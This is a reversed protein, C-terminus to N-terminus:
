VADAGSAIRSAGRADAAFGPQDFFDRGPIAELLDRTYAQRPASFVEATAGEEVIQGKQLVIVRDAIEAAIRLDHTIFIMALRMERRLEALLALVQAQVSVDLASVAEDAILVRPKLALARAICIRQRQGGSFEHPYRDAAAESLGVRLLLKKAQETAAGRATGYAMPGRAIADGIKQRPDLSAFPDQFVIQLQRRAQRLAEGRLQRLDAGGFRIAGADPETLRMIMRGLTSKGSGSEGVVALTEGEHLTLSIGDAAVVERPPQLWGRKVRFTKQLGVVELLPEPRAITAAQIDALRAKPVADILERTYAAQPNRLVEIVTGQEVVKGHRLVVVRDAVDAVVGFDHTILLVGMGRERRLDDILRLIQRQTTVDLATTPEDAILLAPRNAMAMAIMVRQRQGGSLEFPYSKELLLPNPLGVQTLLTQVREHLEAPAPAPRQHALIMEEIQKGVRKLPNLSSLPEQFIMAANGGRLSRLARNDLKSPDQGTVTVAGSAVDVGRPLLQLVAHAIMSKGSGSEGVLCVVENPKIEFSVNEVAFPRDGGEPLAISLNAVALVPVNSQVAESM